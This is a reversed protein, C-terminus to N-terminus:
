QITWSYDAIKGDRSPNNFANESKLTGICRALLISKETINLPRAGGKGNRLTPDNVIVQNNLKKYFDVAEQSLLGFPNMQAPILNGEQACHKITALYSAIAHPYLTVVNSDEISDQPTYRINWFEHDPKGSNYEANISWIIARKERNQHIPVSNLKLEYREKKKRRSPADCIIVGGETEVKRAEVYPTVQIKTGNQETYAFLRSAEALWVFPVRRVKRDLGQVPRFSYGVDFIHNESTNAFRKDLTESVIQPPNRRSDHAGHQSIPQSLPIYKNQKFWKKAAVSWNGFRAVFSPHLVTNTFVLATEPTLSLIREVLGAEQPNAEALDLKRMEPITRDQFFTKKTM